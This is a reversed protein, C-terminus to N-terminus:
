ASGSWMESQEKVELSGPRATAHEQGGRCGGEASLALRSADSFEKMEQGRSCSNQGCLGLNAAAEKGHGATAKVATPRWLSGSWESRAISYRHEKGSAAM